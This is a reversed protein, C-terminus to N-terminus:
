TLTTLLPVMQALSIVHEKTYTTILMVNLVNTAEQPLVNKVPLTVNTADVFIVELVPLM